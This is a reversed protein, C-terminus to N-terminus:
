PAVKPASLEQTLKEPTTQLLRWFDSTPLGLGLRQYPSSGRRRGTGSPQCNWFLRKLDLMGQTMRRHQSQQKRLVSNLCEVASSARCVGSLVAAVGGFAGADSESLAGSRGVAQAVSQAGVSGPHGAQSLWWRWAWAARWQARPEAQELQRHMRDLFMLSRRDSLANRVREWGAEPLDDLAQSLIAAARSRTNLNGQEDFVEFASRARKWAQQTQDAEALAQEARMWAARVRHTAALANQGQCRVRRLAEDAAEAKKWVAEASRWSRKLLKQAQYVTHFLDLGQELAPRQPDAHRTTALDALAKTLGKAGDTVALELATWPRLQAQWTPASRDAANHCVLATM